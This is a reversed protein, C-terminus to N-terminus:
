RLGLRQGDYNNLKVVECWDRNEVYWNVTKALGTDFTEKPKWGLENYIKSADIAYRQDHGPRDKVFKILGGYPKGTSAPIISDLFFIQCIERVVDLNAKENNGGVAYTEGVKGNSLVYYLARM